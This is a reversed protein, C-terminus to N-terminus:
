AWYPPGGLLVDDEDDEDVVEDDDVELAGDVVDDEAAPATWVTLTPCFPKVNLGSVRETEGPLLTSNWKRLLLPGSVSAANLDAACLAPPLVTGVATPPPMSPVGPLADEDLLLLECDDVEELELEELVLEDAVEVELGVEVEVELGLGEGVLSPDVNRAQDDRLITM